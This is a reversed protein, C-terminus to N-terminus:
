NSKMRSGTADVGEVVDEVGESGDVVGVVEVVDDVTRVVIVIKALITDVEPSSLKRVAPGIESLNRTSTGRSM